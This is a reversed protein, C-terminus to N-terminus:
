SRLIGLFARRETGSSECALKRLIGFLTKETAAGLNHLTREPCPQPPTTSKILRGGQGEKMKFLNGIVINPM